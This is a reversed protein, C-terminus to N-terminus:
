YQSNINDESQSQSSDIFDLRGRNVIVKKEQIKDYLYINLFVLFVFLLITSLFVYFVTIYENDLDALTVSYNSSFFIEEQPDQIPISSGLCLDSSDIVRFNTTNGFSNINIQQTFYLKGNVVPILGNSPNCLISALNSTAAPSLIGQKYKLYNIRLTPDMLNLLNLYSYNKDPHYNDIELSFTYNLNGNFEQKYKLNTFQELTLSLSGNAPISQRTWSFNYTGGELSNAAKVLLLVCLPVFGLM